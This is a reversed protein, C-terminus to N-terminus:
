PRIKKKDPKEQEQVKYTTRDEHNTYVITPRSEQFAPAIYLDDPSCLPLHMLDFKHWKGCMYCMYLPDICVWSIWDRLKRQLLTSTVRDALPTLCGESGGKLRMRLFGEEPWFLSKLFLDEHKQSMVVKRVNFTMVIEAEDQYDIGIHKDGDFLMISKAELQVTRLRRKPYPATGLLDTTLTAVDTIFLMCSMSFNYQM